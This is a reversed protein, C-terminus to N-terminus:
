PFIIINIKTGKTFYATGGTFKGVRLDPGQLDLMIAVNTDLEDNLKRIKRIISESFKYTAHKMNIRAIDMGSLIMEKLIDEDKSSPGITAVIKTKKM